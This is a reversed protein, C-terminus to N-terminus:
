KLKPLKSILARNLTTRERILVLVDFDALRIALQGQGKANHQFVKVDLRRLQEFCALHRM